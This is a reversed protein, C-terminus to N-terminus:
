YRKHMEINDKINLRIFKYVIINKYYSIILNFFM